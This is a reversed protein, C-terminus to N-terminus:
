SPVTYIAGRLMMYEGTKNDVEYNQFQTKKVIIRLTIGTSQVLAIIVVFCKWNITFIPTLRHTKPEMEPGSETQKITAHISLPPIPKEDILVRLVEYQIHNIYSIQISADGFVWIKTAVM